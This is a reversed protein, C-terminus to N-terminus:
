NVLKRLDEFTEIDSLCASRNCCSINTMEPEHHRIWTPMCTLDKPWQTMNGKIILGSKSLILAQLMQGCQRLDGYERNFAALLAQWRESYKPDSSIFSLLVLNHAMMGNGSPMAHDDWAVPNIILDCADKPNQLYVCRKPDYYRDIETFLAEADTWYDKKNTALYLKIKAYLWNALDEVFAHQFAVGEYMSHYYKSDLKFQQTCQLDLAMAQNLWFTHDVISATELLANIWLANWDLLFKSDVMPKPRKERYELLKQDIRTVSKMDFTEGRQDHTTLHHLPRNLDLNFFKKAADFDDGLVAQLTATDWLYYAGEVGETEADVASMMLGPEAMLTSLAWQATNELRSALSPDNKYRCLSALFGILLANDYGMKEFHPVRWEDDVAYRFMGGALHDYIGSFCLSHATLFSVNMLDQNNEVVSKLFAGQWLSIQPFKPSGKFGGWKYDIEHEIDFTHPENLDAITALKVEIEGALKEIDQPHRHWLECIRGLLEIFGMLNETPLKPFYTGGYFPKGDSTLFLSMPWGGQGTLGVLAQMYLNDLDPRLERDVKIPIFNQNLIEAVKPDSFSERWMVHCWHCTAYGVSLFIPRKKQRAEEFTENSWMRWKVPDNLHNKLYPSIPKIKSNMGRM